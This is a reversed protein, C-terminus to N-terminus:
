GALFDNLLANFADPQDEHVIHSAHPIVEIRADEILTRLETSIHRFVAPSEAGCVLLVPLSLKKLQEASIAPTEAGLIQAKDPLRNEWVQRYRDESLNEFRDKGLVGKGFARIAAEDEGHRFAKEAPAMATAGLKVIAAAVRPKQVFLRFLPGPKPPMDLFLGLAPPEVLVLKRVLEPRAIAMMLAILGGWSHGVIHAPALSLEDVLSALDDVHAQIPDAAGDAIGPNPRAFRRSYAVTRFTKGFEEFQRSWTRLDSVGGHVLVLAAGAGTECFALTSGEVTATQATELRLMTM